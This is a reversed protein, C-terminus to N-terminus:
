KLINKFANDIAKLLKKDNKLQLIKFHGITIPVAFSINTLENKKDKKMHIILEKIDVSKFYILSKQDIHDIIIKNLFNCSAIDLYGYDNSICNEIFMGILVAIGHPIKYKVIPEIAHGITHGYNLAKRINNEFEDETIVAKKVILATKILVDIKFLLDGKQIEKVKKFEEITSEGGVICLKIIEGYGSLVDRKDLTELFTTNIFVEKPASFLGILNKTGGYNIASKAGICSDAM